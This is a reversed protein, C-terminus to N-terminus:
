YSIANLYKHFRIKASGLMFTRPSATAGTNIVGIAFWMQKEPYNAAVFGQYVLTGDIYFRGVPSTASLSLGLATDKGHVEIRMRQYVGPPTIGYTAPAIGSDTDTSAADNGIKSYWNGGNTAEFAILGRGQFTLQAGSPFADVKSYFGAKYTCNVTSDICMEWEAQLVLNDHLYAVSFYSGIWVSDGASGNSDSTVIIARNGYAPVHGGLIYFAANGDGSTAPNLHTSAGGFSMSGYYWWVSYSNSFNYPGGSYGGTWHESMEVYEGGPFGNHDITSRLKNDSDFFRLMPQHSSNPNIYSPASGWGGLRDGPRLVTGDRLLINNGSRIGILMVNDDVAMTHLNGVSIPSQAAAEPATLNTAVQLQRRYPYSGGIWGIGQGDSPAVTASGSIVVSSSSGQAPMRVQLGTIVLDTGDWTISTSTFFTNRDRAGLAQAVQVRRDVIMAQTITAVAMTRYITALKAARVTATSRFPMGGSGDDPTGSSNETVGVTVILRKRQTTEGLPAAAINPDVGPDIFDEQISVWATDTRNAGPTTLGGYTFDSLLELSYGLFIYVGAKFVLQNAMGNAQVAFGSGIAGGSDGLAARFGRYSTVRINRQLENLEADLVDKNRQFVVEVYNKSEDYSDRTVDPTSM